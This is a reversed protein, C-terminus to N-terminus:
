RTRQNQNELGYKIINQIVFELRKSFKVYTGICKHTSKRM